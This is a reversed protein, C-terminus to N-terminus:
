INAHYVRNLSAPSFSFLNNKGAKKGGTFPQGFNATEPKIQALFYGWFFHLAKFIHVFKLGFKM